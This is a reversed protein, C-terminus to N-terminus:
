FSADIFFFIFALQNSSNLFCFAKPDFENLRLFKQCKGSLFGCMLDANFNQVFFLAVNERLGKTISPPQAPISGVVFPNFSSPKELDTLSETAYLAQKLTHLIRCILKDLNKLM